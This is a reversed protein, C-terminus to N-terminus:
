LICGLFWVLGMCLPQHLLYVWITHRGVTELPPCSFAYFRAPFRGARISDGWATGFLFAFFYPLLPFYDTSAFEPHMIGLFYLGQVNFRLHLLPWLAACLVPCVVRLVKPPIKALLPRAATYILIASGLFHLIGFKVYMQPNFLWTGLTVALGAAFIVLGRKLNNRSFSCSVGSIVIFLLSFFVQLGDVVPNNLLGYPLITAAVLDYGLHYVVMLLIALGRMADIIAIRGVPKESMSASSSSTATRCSM